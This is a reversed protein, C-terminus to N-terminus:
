AFFQGCVDVLSVQVQSQESLSAANRVRSRRECGLNTELVHSWAVRFGPTWTSIKVNKYRLSRTCLLVDGPQRSSERTLGEPAVRIWPQYSGAGPCWSVM